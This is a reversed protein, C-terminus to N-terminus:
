LRRFLDCAVRKCSKDHLAMRVHKSHGAVRVERQSKAHKAELDSITQQLTQSEAEASASASSAQERYQRAEEQACVIAKLAEALKQEVTQLQQNLSAVQKKLQQQEAQM